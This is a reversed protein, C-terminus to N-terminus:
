VTIYQKSFNIYLIYLCSSRRGSFYKMLLASISLVHLIFDSTVSFIAMQFCKKFLVFSSFFPLPCPLVLCNQSPVTTKCHGLSSNKVKQTPSPHSRHLILRFSLLLYCCIHLPCCKWTHPPFYKKFHWPMYHKNIQDSYFRLHPQGFFHNLGYKPPSWDTVLNQWTPINMNSRDWCVFTITVM